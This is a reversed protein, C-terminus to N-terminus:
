IRISMIAGYAQAIEILNVYIKDRSVVTLRLGDLKGMEGMRTIMSIIEVDTASRCSRLTQLISIKTSKFNFVEGAFGLTGTEDTHVLDGMQDLDVLVRIDYRMPIRNAYRTRWVVPGDYVAGANIRITGGVGFQEAWSRFIRCKHELDLVLCGHTTEVNGLVYDETDRNVTWDYPNGVAVTLAYEKNGLFRRFTIEGLFDDTTETVGCESISSHPGFSCSCEKTDIDLLDYTDIVPESEVSKFPVVRTLARQGGTLQVFKQQEGGSVAFIGTPEIKDDKDLISEIPNDVVFNYFADIGADDFHGICIIGKKVLPGLLFARCMVPLRKLLQRFWQERAYRISVFTAIMMFGAFIVSNVFFNRLFSLELAGVRICKPCDCLRDLTQKLAGSNMNFYNM